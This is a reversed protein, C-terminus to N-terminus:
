QEVVNKVLYSLVKERLLDKKVITKADFGYYSKFTKNLEKENKSGTNTLLKDLESKYEKNTIELNEKEAIANYVVEEGAADKATQEKQSEYSDKTMNQASIYDDLTTNQQKLYTNLATELRTKNDEILQKPYNSIKSDSVVKDWAMDKVVDERLKAQYEKATNYGSVNNKVFTDDFKPVNAKGRKSNITVTFVVPKGALDSNVSYKEPFTLKIDCTSCIKKGILAKEFGDIFTNSGITLDYGSPNTDKTLSGGDFAKGDVKGVYFINVTDGNAVTGKKVAEYTKNQDLLQDIQTKLKSEIDTKKLTVKKYETLTVAKQYDINEVKQETTKKKGCGALTTVCLAVCLATALYKKLNRM